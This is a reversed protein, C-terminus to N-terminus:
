SDFHWGQWSHTEGGSACLLIHNTFMPLFLLGLEFHFLLALLYTITPPNVMDSLVIDFFCMHDLVTKLNQIRLRLM